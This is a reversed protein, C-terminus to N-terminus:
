EAHSGRSAIDIGEFVWRAVPVAWSNGCAKYRPGDPCEAEPKGNWRIKTWGDPFGMLREAEICMLRRVGYRVPTEVTGTMVAHPGRAVLTASTQANDTIEPDYQANEGQNYAARDLFVVRQAPTEVPQLVNLRVDQFSAADHGLSAPLCDSIQAGSAALPVCAVAHHHGKTRTYQPGEAIDGFSHSDGRGLHNMSDIPYAVMAMPTARGSANANANTNITGMVEGTRVEGAQNQAVAVPPVIPQSTLPVNGGGTGWKGVITPCIDHPDTLRSDQSHLEYVAGAAGAGAPWASGEWPERGKPTDGRLCAGLALLESPDPWEVAGGGPAANPIAVLWCRRRRQPVGFYQADLTAWAVRRRPGVVSGNSPWKNSETELPDPLGCLEALFCGFANTKDSYVGPVNEWVAIAPALNAVVRVDDIANLIEAFCLTLNGRLDDLGRRKGAVSFAQCNHVIAGDLIYSHDEAVEINYVTDMGTDDYGNCRRLIMGHANRSKRSTAQPFARVQWYDRQNVTRGEIVCTPPTAVLAVSAAYGCAQALERIGYALSRSVSNAAFAGSSHRHGDTDLYGTLVYERCTDAHVWAPIRKGGSLAGFERLLWDCLATDSITIRVSTREKTTPLNRGLRFFLREAKEGNLSLVLQKKNKGAYRRIHGYGLYYGALIMAEKATWRESRYGKDQGSSAWGLACWQRGPMQRAPTWCPEGVHEVKAYAGNRKTNQNRYEVSMFPHDETCCIGDPIGVGRLMGVKALKSGTRVVECLRGTHTVVMMGPRVEEIPIFGQECLVMHGATFCPTGGVLVDPAELKGDRLLSPIMTMDGVNRITGGQINRKITKRWNVLEKESLWYPENEPATAGLRQNLVACPFPEVEAFWSPEWGLTHTAVSAAEIGSCVSGFKM